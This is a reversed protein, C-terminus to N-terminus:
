KEKQKEEGRKEMEICNFFCMHFCMSHPCKHLVPHLIFTVVGFKAHCVRM